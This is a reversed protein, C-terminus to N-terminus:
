VTKLRLTKWYSCCYHVWATNMMTVFIKCSMSSQVQYGIPVCSTGQMPMAPVCERTEYARSVEETTKVCAVYGQFEQDEKTVIDGKSIEIRLQGALSEVDPKLIQPCSPPIVKKVYEKGNVKLQQKEISFVLKDATMQRRGKRLLFQRRKKEAFAQPPLHKRIQYSQGM